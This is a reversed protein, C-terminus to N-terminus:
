QHEYCKVKDSIIGACIKESPYQLNKQLLKEAPCRKFSQKRLEKFVVEAVKTFVHGFNILFPMLFHTFIKFILLLFMLSIFIIM